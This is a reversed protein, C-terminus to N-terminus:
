FDKLMLGKRELIREIRLRGGHVGSRDGLEPAGHRLFYILLADYNDGLCGRGFGFPRWGSVRDCGDSWINRRSSGFKVDGLEGCENFLSMEKRMGWWM